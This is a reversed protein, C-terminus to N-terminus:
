DAAEGAERRSMLPIIPPPIPGPAPGPPVPAIPPTIPGFSASVRVVMAKFWDWLGAARAQQCLLTFQAELQDQQPTVTSM